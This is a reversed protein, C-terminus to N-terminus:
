GRSGRYRKDLCRWPAQLHGALPRRTAQLHRCSCRPWAGNLAGIRGFSTHHFILALGACGFLQCSRGLFSNRDRGEKTGEKGGPGREEGHETPRERTHPLLGSEVDFSFLCPSLLLSFSSGGGVRWRATVWLSICKAGSLIGWLGATGGNHQTPAHSHRTRRTRQTKKKKTKKIECTFIIRGRNGQRAMRHADGM